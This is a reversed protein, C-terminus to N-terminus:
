RGETERFSTGWGWGAKSVSPGGPRWSWRGPAGWRPRSFPPHSLCRLEQGSNGPFVEPPGPRGSEQSGPVQSVTGTPPRDQVQGGRWMAPRLPGCLMM